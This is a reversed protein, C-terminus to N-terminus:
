AAAAGLVGVFRIAEELTTVPEITWLKAACEAGMYEFYGDSVEEAQDRWERLIEIAARKAEDATDAEVLFKALAELDGFIETAHVGWYLDM